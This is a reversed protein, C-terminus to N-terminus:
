LRSTLKFFSFIISEGTGNVVFVDIVDCKLHIKDITSLILITDSTYVGPSDVQIANPPKYDWYPALGFLTKLFSKGDNRLTGFNEAFLTLLLKTKMSIADYEIQLTKELDAM